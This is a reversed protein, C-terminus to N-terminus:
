IRAILKNIKNYSLGMAKYKKRAAKIKNIRGWNIKYYGFTPM